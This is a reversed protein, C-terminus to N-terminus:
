NSDVYLLYAQEENREGSVIDAVYISKTLQKVLDLHSSTLHLNNIWVTSYPQM